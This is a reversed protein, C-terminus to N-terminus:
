DVENWNDPSDYIGLCVIKGYTEGNFLYNNEDKVKLIRM